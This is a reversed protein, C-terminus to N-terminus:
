NQLFILFKLTRETRRCSWHFCMLAVMSQNGDWSFVCRCFYHVNGTPIMHSCKKIAAFIQNASVM